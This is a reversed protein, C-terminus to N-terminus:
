EKIPANVAPTAPETWLGMIECVSKLLADKDSTSLNQWGKGKAKAKVSAKLAKIKELREQTMSYVGMSSM